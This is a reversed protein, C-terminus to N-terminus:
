IGVGRDNEGAGTTEIAERGDPDDNCRAGVPEALAIATRPARGKGGPPNLVGGNEEGGRENLGAILGVTEVAGDGFTGESEEVKVGICGDLLFLTGVGM